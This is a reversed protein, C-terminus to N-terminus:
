RTSWPARTGRGRRGAGQQRGPQRDRGGAAAHRLPRHDGTGQGPGAHGPQDAAGPGGQALRADAARDGGAPRPVAPRGAALRRVARRIGQVQHGARRRGPREADRRDDARPHGPRVSARPRDERAAGAQPAVPQHRRRRVGSQQRMWTMIKDPTSRSSTWTPGRLNLEIMAQRFGAGSILQWTRCRPACTPTTRWSRGRRASSTSSRSTAPDDEPLNSIALYWFKWDWWHRTRQELDILRAYITGATVDGQGRSMRGTTDGITTFM